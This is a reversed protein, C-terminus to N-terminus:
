FKSLWSQKFFIQPCSVNFFHLSTVEKVANTPGQMKHIINDKTQNVHEDIYMKGKINAASM